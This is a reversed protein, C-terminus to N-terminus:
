QGSSLASIYGWLARAPIFCEGEVMDEAYEAGADELALVGRGIGM